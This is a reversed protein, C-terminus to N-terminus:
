SSRVHLFKSTRQSEDTQRPAMDCACIFEFLYSAIGINRFGQNALVYRVLRNDDSLLFIARKTQLIETRVLNGIPQRGDILLYTTCFEEQQDIASRDAVHQGKRWM